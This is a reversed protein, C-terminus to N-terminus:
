SILARKYRILKRLSVIHSFLLAPVICSPLWVFPFYLVAQNPQDFGFIQFPVDASLISITVINILMLLCVVNWTILWNRRAFRGRFAFMVIVPTYLGSLIDYNYGEFTMAAPIMKQIFLWHLVFEVPIRIIHIWTLSRLSLKDTFRRGSRTSFVLLIILLSPLFLVPLRKGNSDISTYFGIASLMGQFLVLSLFVTAAFRNYNMARFYLVFCAITIVIFVLSIQVPLDPIM